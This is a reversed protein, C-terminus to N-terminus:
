VSRRELLAIFPLGLVDQYFSIARDLDTARQSVQHLRQVRFPDPV